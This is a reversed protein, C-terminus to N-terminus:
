RALGHTQQGLYNTLALLAERGASEPLRELCKGAEALYRKIAALSHSVTDYHELLASVRPWSDLNWDAVMRELETRDATSAREWALILPLTLKGKALDTGLSKGAASETGFLDVCDDYIQYATGFALGYQRMASRQAATANSLLAALE